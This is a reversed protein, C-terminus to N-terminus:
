RDGKPHTYQGHHKTRGSGYQIAFTPCHHLCRLCIACEPAVWVPSGDRLEIAQVPCQRACLGCGICTDEVYFHRTQRDRELIRHTIHRLLYPSRPRTHNGQERHLIRSLINDIYTEALQNQRAVKEPDSLDFIPTWNDPMKVGFSADLRLGRNHFARRADEGTYGPTTGYTSVYFLYNDGKTTVQMRGIFNRVLIPMEWWNTPAVIGLAEGQSLRVEPNAGVISIAKDDLVAAIREAVYKSNGTGTFYFIM